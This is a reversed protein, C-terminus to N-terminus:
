SNDSNKVTKIVAKGNRIVVKFDVHSGGNSYSKQLSKAVKEFSLNDVPENCRKRAVLYKKYVLQAKELPLEGAKTAAPGPIRQGPGEGEHSSARATPPPKARHPAKPATVNKVELEDAFPDDIAGIGGAASGSSVPAPPTLPAPEAAFPDDLGLGFDDMEIVHAVASSMEEQLLLADELGGTAAARAGHRAEVRRKALMVHRQYTGNEIQRCVRNWYTSQTNYKQIQMQLRFRLATNLIQERRMVYIKRDLNKRPIAPETKEIGMFYQNYLAHLRELDREIEVIMKEQEGPTM